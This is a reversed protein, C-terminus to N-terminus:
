ANVAEPTEAIPKVKAVAPLFKLWHEKTRLIEPDVVLCKQKRVIGEALFSKQFHSYFHSMCDEFLVTLSGITIGGGCVTDLTPTGSGVLYM